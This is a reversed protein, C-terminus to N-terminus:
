DPKFPNNEINEILWRSLEKSTRERAEPVDIGVANMWANVKENYEEVDKIFNKYLEEENIKLFDSYEKYNKEYIFSELERLRKELYTGMFVLMRRVADLGENPRLLADLDYLQTKIHDFNTIDELWKSYVYYTIELSNHLIMGFTIIRPFSESYSVDRKILNSVYERKKIEDIKLEIKNLLEHDNRFRYIQSRLDMFAYNTATTYISLQSVIKHIGNEIYTQHIISFTREETEREIQYVRDEKSKKTVTYYNFVGSVTAAVLGSGIILVLFEEWIM